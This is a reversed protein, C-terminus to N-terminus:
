KNFELLLKLIENPLMEVEKIMKWLHFNVDLSFKTDLEETYYISNLETAVKKLEEVKEQFKDM